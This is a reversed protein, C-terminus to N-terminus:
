LSDVHREDDAPRIAERRFNALARSGTERQCRPRKGVLERSEDEGLLQIAGSRDHLALWVVFSPSRKTLAGRTMASDMPPPASVRAASSPLAGGPHNRGCGRPTSSHRLWASATRLANGPARQSSVSRGASDALPAAASRSSRTAAPWPTTTV